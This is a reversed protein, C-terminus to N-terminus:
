EGSFRPERKEFFATLGEAFDKSRLAEMQAPVEEDLAWALGRALGGYVLRKIHRLAIPPGAALARCLAACAERAGEAPVVREVLGIRLAEAADVAEGTMLLELARGPGCLRPLTFSLGGDPCLGIRAFSVRFRARETAVRLDCAAALSVGFGAAPGDVLAVAPLECDRIAAILAQFRERMRTEVSAPDAGGTALAARLDLGSCFAGGEGTIALCRAGAGPAGRVAELIGLNVEDTLGNRTEPRDIAIWRVADEDRVILDPM